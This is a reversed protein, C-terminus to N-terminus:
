RSQAPRLRTSPLTTPSPFFWGTRQPSYRVDGNHQLSYTGSPCRMVQTPGLCPGHGPSYTWSPCWQAGNSVMMAHCCRTRHHGSALTGTSCVPAEYRWSTCWVVLRSPCMSCPQLEHARQTEHLLTRGPHVGCSRAVPACRARDCTSHEIRGTYPWSTCGVVSHRPCM